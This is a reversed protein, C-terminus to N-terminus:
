KKKKRKKIKVFENYKGCFLALFDCDGDHTHLKANEKIWKKIEKWSCKIGHYKRYSPKSLCEYGICILLAWKFPDSGLNKNNIGNGHSRAAVMILNALEKSFDKEFKTRITRM